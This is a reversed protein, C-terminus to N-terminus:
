IRLALKAREIWDGKHVIKDVGLPRGSLLERKSIKSLRKWDPGLVYIANGYV